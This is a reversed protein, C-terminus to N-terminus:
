TLGAQKCYLEYSGYPVELVDYNCDEFMRNLLLRLTNVGSQGQIEEVPVGGFYVANLINKMNEYPIKRMFLSSGLESDKNARAGHDSQLIIIANPEREIIAGITQKLMTTCYALQGLYYKDDRWNEDESAPVGRGNADFIFPQHPCAIHALTFIGQQDYDSEDQLYSFSALINAQRFSVSKQSFPYVVTQSFILDQVTDGSITAAGSAREADVPELGYYAAEGVGRVTYGHQRMVQFLVSNKRLGELEADTADAFNLKYELAMLNATVTSTNIEDNYSDQSVTFGLNQLFDAFADNNYNYCQKLTNFSSYEDVIIYYVNPLNSGDVHNQQQSALEARKAANERNVNVKKIITPVAMAVNMLMLAAFVGGIIQVATKSGDESVKKKVLVALHIILLVVLALCHWYRLEKCIFSVAKELLSFNLMVLMVVDTILGAHSVSRLLFSFILLLVLGIGCFIGAPLLCESVTAEDANQAYLFVIPFLSVTLVSLVASIGSILKRKKM